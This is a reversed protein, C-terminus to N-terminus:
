RIPCPAPKPNLSRSVAVGNQAKATATFLVFLCVVALSFYRVVAKMQIGGLSILVRVWGLNKGRSGFHTREVGEEGTALQRLYV